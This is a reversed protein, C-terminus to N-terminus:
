QMCIWMKVTRGKQRKEVRAAMDDLVAAVADKESRARCSGSLCAIALMAALVLPPKM